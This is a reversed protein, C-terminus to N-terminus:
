ELDSKPITNGYYLKLYNEDLYELSIKENKILLEFDHHKSFEKILTFHSINLTLDIYPTAYLDAVPLDVLMSIAIALRPDLRDNNTVAINHREKFAIITQQHEKIEQEHTLLDSPPLAYISQLSKQSHYYENHDPLHSIKTAVIQKNIANATSNSPASKLANAIVSSLPEKPLQFTLNKIKKPVSAKPISTSTSTSISITANSSNELISQNLIKAYLLNGLIIAM